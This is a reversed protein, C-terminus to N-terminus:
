TNLRNAMPLPVIQLYLRTPPLTGNIDGKNQSHGTVCDGESAQLDIYLVRLYKLVMDEHISDHKEGHHYHVFGRFSYALGLSINENILTAMTM